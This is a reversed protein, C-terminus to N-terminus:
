QQQSPLHAKLTSFLELTEEVGGGGPVKVDDRMLPNQNRVKRPGTTNDARPFCKICWRM